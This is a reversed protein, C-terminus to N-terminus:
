KNGGTQVSRALNVGAQYSLIMMRESIVLIFLLAFISFIGTVTLCTVKWRMEKELLHISHQQDRVKAEIEALKLPNDM